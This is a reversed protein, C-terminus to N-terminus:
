PRSTSSTACCRRAASLRSAISPDEPSAGRLIQHVRRLGSGRAQACARGPQRRERQVAVQARQLDVSREDRAREHDRASGARLDAPRLRRRREHGRCEARRGTAVPSQRHRETRSTAGSPLRNIDAHSPREWWFLRLRRAPRRLGFGLDGHAAARSSSPSASRARRVARGHHLHAAHHQAITVTSASLVACGYLLLWTGPLLDELHRAAVAGRHARAGAFLAPCLCLLFKRVPGLYRAHGSQAAERAMLAGGVLSHSHRRRVDLDRALTRGWHPPSACVPRWCASARGDRRGRYGSGGHLRLRRHFSPHVRANRARPSEIPIPIDSQM